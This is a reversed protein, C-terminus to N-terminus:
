EKQSFFSCPYTYRDHASPSSPFPMHLERVEESHMATISGVTADPSAHNRPFIM